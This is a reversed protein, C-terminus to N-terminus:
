QGCRGYLSLLPFDVKMFLKLTILVSPHPRKTTPKLYTQKTKTKQPPNKPLTPLPPPQKLKSDLTTWSTHNKLWLEWLWPNLGLILGCQDLSSEYRGDGCSYPLSLIGFCIWLLTQWYFCANSFGSPSCELVSRQRYIHDDSCIHLWGHQHVYTVATQGMHSQCIPTTTRLKKQLTYTGSLIYRKLLTQEFSWSNNVRHTFYATDSRSQYVWHFLFSQMLITAYSFICLCFGLPLHIWGDALCVKDKEGTWSVLSTTWLIKGECGKRRGIQIERRFRYMSAVHKERAILPWSELAGLGCEYVLLCTM